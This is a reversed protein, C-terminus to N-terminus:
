YFSVVFSVYLSLPFITRQKKILNAPWEGKIKKMLFTKQKTKEGKPMIERRCEEDGAMETLAQLVRIRIVDVCSKNGEANFSTLQDLM